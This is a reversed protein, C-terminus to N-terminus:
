GQADLLVGNILFEGDATTYVIMDNGEYNVVWGNLSAGVPFKRVIDLGKNKLHQVPEPLSGLELEPLFETEAIETTENPETLQDQAWTQSTLGIILSLTLASFFLSPYRTM